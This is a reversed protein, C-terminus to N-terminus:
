SFVCVDIHERSAPRIWSCFLDYTSAERNYSIPPSRLDASKPGFVRFVDLAGAGISRNGWEELGQNGRWTSLTM